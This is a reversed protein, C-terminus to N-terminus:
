RRLERRVEIAYLYPMARDPISPGTMIQNVVAEMVPITTGGALTMLPLSFGAAGSVTAGGLAGAIISGTNTRLATMLRTTWRESFVRDLESLAREIRQHGARLSGELDDSGSLSASLVAIEEHLQNLQDIRHRKFDLIDQFPTDPPCVPLANLFSLALTNQKTQNRGLRSLLNAQYNEIGHITQNPILVSWEDEKSLLRSIIGDVVYNPFQMFENMDFSNTDKYQWRIACGEAELAEIDDDLARELGNAFIPITVQDWYLAANPIQERVYHSGITAVRYDDFAVTAICVCRM